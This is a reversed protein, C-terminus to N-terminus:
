LCAKKNIFMNQMNWFHIYTYFKKCSLPLSFIGLCVTQHLLAFDLADVPFMMHICCPLKQQLLFHPHSDKLVSIFNDLNTGIQCWPLSAVLQLWLFWLYEISNKPLWPFLFVNDWQCIELATIKVIRVRCQIASDCVCLFFRQFVSKFDIVIM